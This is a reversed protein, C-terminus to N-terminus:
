YIRKKGDIGLASVRLWNTERLSVFACLSNRAKQSLSGPFLLVLIAKVFIPPNPSDIM